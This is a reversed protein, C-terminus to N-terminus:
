VKSYRRLKSERELLNHARDLVRVRPDLVNSLWVAIKNVGISENHGSSGRTM